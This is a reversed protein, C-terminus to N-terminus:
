RSCPLRRWITTPVSFSGIELRGNPRRRAADAVLHGDALIRDVALDRLGLAATSEPVVNRPMASSQNRQHAIRGTDRFFFLRRQEVAVDQRHETIARHGLDLRDLDRHQHLVALPPDAGAVGVVQPSQDGIIRPTIRIGAGRIFPLRSCM